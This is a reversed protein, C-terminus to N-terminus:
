FYVKGPVVGDRRAELLETVTVFTYGLEKFKKIMQPMTDVTSKHIDHLLVIDGDEVAYSGSFTKNMIAASNRSEWDRTDVGWQIIPIGEDAAYQKVTDDYSGGPCRMVTPRHGLVKEVKDACLNMEKKVQALTTMSKLNKHSNSHNGVEHGEAEMRRILEPYTDVRTGLVFFTAKVGEKKLLDLLEETYGGPGDDFTLAVIKKGDLKGPDTSTPKATAVTTKSTKATTTHKKLSAIQEQLETITKKQEAITKDQEAAAASADSEAKELAKQAEALKEQATKLQQELAALSQEQETTHQRQNSVTLATYVSLTGLGIALACVVAILVIWGRPARRAKPNLPIHTNTNM